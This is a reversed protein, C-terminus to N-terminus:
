CVSTATSSIMILLSSQQEVLRSRMPSITWNTKELSSIESPSFCAFNNPEQELRPMFNYVVFEILNDHHSVYADHQFEHAIDDLNINNDDIIPYIGIYKRRGIKQYIKVSFVIGVAIVLLFGISVIIGIVTPNWFGFPVPGNNNYKTTSNKPHTCNMVTLVKLLSAGQLDAPYACKYPLKDYDYPHIISEDPIGDLGVDILGNANKLWVAFPKLECTCNFPNYRMGFNTLHILRKLIAVAKESVMSIDNGDFYVERLVTLRSLFRFDDIDSIMNYQLNLIQLSHLNNLGTPVEKLSSRLIKFTVVKPLLGVHLAQLCKEPVDMDSIFIIKLNEAVVDLAEFSFERFHAGDVDFRTLKMGAFARRDIREIFTQKLSLETINGVVNNLKEFANPPLTFNTWEWSRIQIGYIEGPIYPPINSFNFLLQSDIDNTYCVLNTHWTFGITPESHYVYYDLCHCVSCAEYDNGYVLSIRRFIWLSYMLLMRWEM